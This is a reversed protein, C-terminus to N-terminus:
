KKISRVRNPAIIRLGRGRAQDAVYSAQHHSGILGHFFFIPRGVPDGYECVELLRSTRMTFTMPM